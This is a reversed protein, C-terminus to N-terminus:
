VVSEFRKAECERCDHICVKMIYPLQCECDCEKNYLGYGNEKIYAEVIEKVTM